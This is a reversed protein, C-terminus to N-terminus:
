KLPFLVQEQLYSNSIVTFLFGTLSFMHRVSIDVAKRVRCKYSYSTLTQEVDRVIHLGLSIKM